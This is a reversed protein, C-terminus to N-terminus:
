RASKSPGAATVGLWASLWLTATNKGFDIWDAVAPAHGDKYLSLVNFIGVVTAMIAAKTASREWWKAPEDPPPVLPPADSM